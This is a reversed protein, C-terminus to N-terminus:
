GTSGPSPLLVPVGIYSAAVKCALKLTVFLESRYQHYSISEVLQHYDSESQGSLRTAVAALVGFFVLQTRRSM